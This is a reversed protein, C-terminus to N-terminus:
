QLPNKGGAVYVALVVLIAQHLMQDVHPAGAPYWAGSGTAEMLRKVPWRRDIVAHTVWSATLAVLGRRPSLPVGLASAAGAVSAALALHYTACHAQNARWTRWYPVGKTINHDPHAKTCAQGDTQAGYDGIQHGALAAIALAAFNAAKSNIMVNEKTDDSQCVLSFVWAM